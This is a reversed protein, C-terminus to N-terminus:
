YVNINIQVVLPAMVDMELGNKGVVCDMMGVGIVHVMWEMAIIGVTKVMEEEQHVVKEVEREQDQTVREEVQHVEKEVKEEVQPVEKEVKEKGVKEKAEKEQDM